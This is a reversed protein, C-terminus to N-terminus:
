LRTAPLKGEPPQSAPPSGVLLASRVSAPPIIWGFDQSHQRMDMALGPQHCAAKVTRAQMQHGTDSQADEQPPLTPPLPVSGDSVANRGM